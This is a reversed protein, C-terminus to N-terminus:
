QKNDSGSTIPCAWNVSLSTNTLFGFWTILIMNTSIYMKYGVAEVTKQLNILFSIIFVVIDYLLLLLFLFNFFPPFILFRFFLLTILIWISIYVKYISYKLEILISKQYLYLWIACSKRFLPFLFLDTLFVIQCLSYTSVRM